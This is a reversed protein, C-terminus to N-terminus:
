REMSPNYLYVDDYVGAVGRGGFFLIESGYVESRHSNRAEPVPGNQNPTVWDMAIRGSTERKGM